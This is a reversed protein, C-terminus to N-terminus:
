RQMWDNRPLFLSPASDFHHQSLLASLTLTLGLAAVCSQTTLFESPTGLWSDQSGGRQFSFTALYLIYVEVHESRGLSLVCIVAPKRQVSPQSKACDKNAKRFLPMRIKSICLQLSFAWAVKFWLQIAFLEILGLIPVSLSSLTPISLFVIVAFRCLADETRVSPKSPSLFGIELLLNYKICM